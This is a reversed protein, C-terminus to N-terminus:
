SQLNVHDDRCKPCYHSYSVAIENEEDQHTIQVWGDIILGYLNGDVDLYDPLIREEGCDDCEIVDIQKKTMTRAALFIGSTWLFPM